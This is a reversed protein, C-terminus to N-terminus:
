YSGHHIRFLLREKKGVGGASDASRRPFNLDAVNAVAQLGVRGIALPPWRM